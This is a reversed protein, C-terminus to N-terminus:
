CSPALNLHSPHRPALFRKDLAQLIQWFTSASQLKHVLELVHMTIDLTEVHKEIPVHNCLHSVKTLKAMQRKTSTAKVQPGASSPAQAKHTIQSPLNTVLALQAPMDVFAADAASGNPVGCTTKCTFQPAAKRYTPMETPDKCRAHTPQIPKM